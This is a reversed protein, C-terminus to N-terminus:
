KVNHKQPGILASFSVLEEKFSSSARFIAWSKMVYPERSMDVRVPRGGLAINVVRELWGFIKVHPGTVPSYLKTIEEPDM